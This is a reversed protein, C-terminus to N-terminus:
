PNSTGSNPMKATTTGEPYILVEVSGGEPAKDSKGLGITKIKTDELKFNKVLYDRVVMARAETLLHNNQSDGKMDTYATIVALGFHNSQLFEGTENLTKENKLKATDPKDFIKKAEYDFKKEAPKDPLQSVENKKLDAASEYGREKFFGRLFFNHKLAEMDEKFANTGANVNQYIKKDNILAGISGQGQNIKTTISNLNSATQNVNDIAGKTTDLVESTKNLLDSIQLPPEGQITDGNKVKPAQESGFSIEVFKDGVLGESRITAVSDNKIVSRTPGAMDMLIRVKENPRMPLKIQRVTGEHIGGVRVEAGGNLGAVNQFEAQLRYTSHFLFQKNGIWFVGAAFMLLTAVIFIGLRFTRSMPEGSVTVSFNRSSRM